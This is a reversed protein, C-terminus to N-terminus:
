ASAGPWTATPRPARPAARARRRAQDPRTSSRWTRARRRRAVLARIADLGDPGSVLADRPEYRRSRPRSGPGSTRACTPCTPWWWTTTATPCGAGGRDVELPLGLRAANARAVEVAAASRTRPASWWTPGSTSCRWRWRARAPAWTTCARARRAARAGGGRAARDRSAPDARARGGDLEIHRFGKRGLIYAVPERRVRRRVRESSSGRRRRAADARGPRDRARRPRGRARRGGAARRRPAAHRLGAAALAPVAADLVERATM